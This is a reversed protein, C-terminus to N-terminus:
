RPSRTTSHRTRSDAWRRLLATRRTLRFPSEAVNTDTTAIFVTTINQEKSERSRVTTKLSGPYGPPNAPFWFCTYLMVEERGFLAHHMALLGLSADQQAPFPFFFGSGFLDHDICPMALGLSTIDQRAPFPFFFGCYPEPRSASPEEEGTSDKCKPRSMPSLAM